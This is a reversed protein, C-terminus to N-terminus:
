WQYAIALGEPAFSQSRSQPLVQSATLPILRWRNPEEAHKRHLYIFLETTLAGLFAAGVVDSFWHADHGMRGFGDLLALSYVPLSVYWVNHFYESVGAALGFMPTVDGSVFSAGGDFFQTHSHSDQRPRLRGFAAKIGIDVITAVAAGEGATIAYQRAVSDGMFLGYGYLAATAAPVSSYSIDQLLNANASGMSRLHSRLTQDLAFSGFWVAAIGGFAVYFTPSRFVSNEDAIHLPSTLIDEADLQVNDVLYAFDDFVESGLDGFISMGRAPASWAELSVVLATVVMLCNRIASTWSKKKRM